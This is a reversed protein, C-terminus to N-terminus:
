DPNDQQKKSLEEIELKILAVALMNMDKTIDELADDLNFISETKRINAAEKQLRGAMGELIVAVKNSLEKDTLKM